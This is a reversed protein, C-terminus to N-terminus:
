SYQMHIVVTWIRGSQFLELKAIALYELEGVVDSQMALSALWWKLGIPSGRPESELEVLTDSQM